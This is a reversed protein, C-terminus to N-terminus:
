RTICTVYPGLPPGPVTAPGAGAPYVVTSPPSLASALGAANACAVAFSYGVGDEFGGAVCAVGGPGLAGCVAPAGACSVCHANCSAIPVGGSDQPMHWTLSVAGPEASVGVVSYPASPAAATSLTHAFVTTGNDGPGASNWAWVAFSWLPVGPSLGTLVVPSSSVNLLSVNGAYGYLVTYTLIPANSPPPPTWLLEVGWVLPQAFLDTVAAPPVVPGGPPVVANSVGAPGPGAVNVASVNFVYSVGNTLGEVVIPSGYATRIPIGNAPVVSIAFATVGAGGDDESAPPVWSVTASMNGAVATVPFPAAPCGIPLAPGSGVCPGWGATNNGSVQDVLVCACVRFLLVLGAATPSLIHPSPHPPPHPAVPPVCRVVPVCAGV